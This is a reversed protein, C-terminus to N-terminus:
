RRRRSSSTARGQGRVATGAAAGACGPQEQLVRVGQAGPRPLADGRADGGAAAGRGRGPGREQHRHRLPDPGAARAARRHRPVRGEARGREQGDEGFTQAPASWRTPSSSGSRRSSSTSWARAARRLPLRRGAPRAAGAEPPRPQHEPIRRHLAQRLDGQARGPEEFGLEKAWDDDIALPVPAKVEKVTVTFVADKGAVETSATTPRPLDGRGRPDRGAARRDLQEEFGPM